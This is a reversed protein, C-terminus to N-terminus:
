GPLRLLCVASGESSPQVSCENETDQAQPLKHGQAVAGHGLANRM